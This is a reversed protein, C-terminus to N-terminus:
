SRQAIKREQSLWPVLCCPCDEERSLSALRHSGVSSICEYKQTLLTNPIRVIKAIVTTM